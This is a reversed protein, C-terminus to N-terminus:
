ENDDLEGDRKIYDYIADMSMGLSFRFGEECTRAFLARRDEDGILCWAIDFMRKYEFMLRAMKKSNRTLAILLLDEKTKAM